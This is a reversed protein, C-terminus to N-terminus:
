YDKLFDDLLIINFNPDDKMHKQLSEDTTIIIREKTTMASEFLYTDSHFNTKRDGLDVELNLKEITTQPLEVNEDVYRCRPDDNLLIQAIIFKLRDHTNKDYSFDKKYRHIKKLFESDRKVVWVDNKAYFKQIFLNVKNVKETSIDPKLYEPLWENIVLEM